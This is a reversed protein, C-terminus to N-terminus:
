SLVGTRGVSVLHECTHTDVDKKTERPRVKKQVGSPDVAKMVAVDGDAWTRLACYIPMGDRRGSLVVAIPRRGGRSLKKNGNKGDSINGNRLSALDERRVPCQKCKVTEDQPCPGM